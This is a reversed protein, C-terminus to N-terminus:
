PVYLTIAWKNNHMQQFSCRLINNGMNFTTYKVDTSESIHPFHGTHRNETTGLCQAKGTHQEPIKQIIKLHKCNGKNNSTDSKNNCEEHVTNTNYTKINYLRRPM